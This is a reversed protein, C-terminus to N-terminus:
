FFIDYKNPKPRKPTTHKVKPKSPKPEAPTAPTSTASSANPASGSISELGVIEEAPIQDTFAYEDDEFTMDEEEEQEM